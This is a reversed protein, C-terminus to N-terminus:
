LKFYEILRKYTAIFIIITFILICLILYYINRLLLKNFTQYQIAQISFQEFFALIRGFLPGFLFITLFFGCIGLIYGAIVDTPYHVGLQIRSFAVIISFMSFIIIILPSNLLYGFILGQSTTNYVHWSPFSASTPKRELVQIEKIKAFPRSREFIKKLSVILVLGLLFSSSIYSLIIPDYWIFLYYEILVLWITERGFFSIFRLFITFPKGGIGNYKAIIRQDWKDLKQFLEKSEM